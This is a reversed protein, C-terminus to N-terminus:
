QRPCVSSVENRHPETQADRNLIVQVTINGMMEAQLAIKQVRAKSEVRNAM